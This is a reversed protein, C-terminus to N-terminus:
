ENKKSSKYLVKNFVELYKEAATEISFKSQNALLRTKLKEYQQDIESLTKEINESNIINPLSVGFEQALEITGGQPHYIVPLGCSMAELVVNPCAENISPFLLADANQYHKIIESQPLVGLLNVNELPVNENWQGIFKCSVRSNKSFKAITTFGKNINNSWSVSLLNIKNDIKRRKETPYFLRQNVGNPIITYNKGSYGYKQFAKLSFVSQFIIFDAMKALNIQVQDSEHFKNTYIGRLGDLRHVIKFDYKRRLLRNILKNKKEKLEKIEKVTISKNVGSSAAAMFLLDVEHNMKTLNVEGQKTDSLYNQFSKMFSNIGGWPQNTPQYHFYINM